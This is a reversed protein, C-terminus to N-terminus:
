ALLTTIAQACLGMLGGPVIGMAGNQYIMAADEGSAGGISQAGGMRLGTDMVIAAAQDGCAEDIGMHM